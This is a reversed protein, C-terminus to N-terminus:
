AEPESETGFPPEPEPPALADVAGHLDGAASPRDIADILRHLLAILELPLNM